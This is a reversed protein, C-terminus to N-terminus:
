WSFFTKRELNAPVLTCIGEPNEERRVENESTIMPHTHRLALGIGALAAFAELALVAVSPLLWRGAPPLAASVPLTAHWLAAPGDTVTLWPVGSGGTVFTLRSATVTQWVDVINLGHRVTKKLRKKKKNLTDDIVIPFLLFFISLCKPKKLNIMCSDATM